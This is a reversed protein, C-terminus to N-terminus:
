SIPAGFERETEAVVQEIASATAVDAPIGISRVGFKKAVRAAETHVRDAQRAVLVM